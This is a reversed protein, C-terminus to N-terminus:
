RWSIVREDVFNYSFTLQQSVSDPFMPHPNSGDANMVWVEWRGTRNTLFAIQTGDPSWAPAVNHWASQVGPQVAAWLPTQTLRVRGSGDSNIRYIDTGDSGGGPRGRTLAIYRGDPSFVPSGDDVNETLKYTTRRNLDVALLGHGGDSVIRWPNAPDWAPRFAYTGGDVDEFSGDAVNVVRLAWHPDPPLKYCFDIDVEPGQPTMGKIDIKVKPNGNEDLYGYANAPPPDPEGESLDHCITKVELRGEHQFNLVIKSGDPSWDAGKPQKTFGLVARENSGDINILWLSGNDGEWRTFAVTQGDPSLVPDIGRTLYRLGSGDPNIVVIDGGSSLQLVMRSNQIKLTSNQIKEAGERSAEQDTGIEPRYVPLGAPQAHLTLFDLPLWGEGGGTPLSVHAWGRGENLGQVLVLSHIALTGVPEGFIGPQNRVTVENSNVWATVASAAGAPATIDAEALKLWGLRGESTQVLGWQRSQDVALLSVTQEVLDDIRGYPEGPGKYLGVQRPPTQVTLLPHLALPSAASPAPAAEAAQPSALAVTRWAVNEVAADPTEAPAEATPVPTPTAVPAAETQPTMRPFPTPTPIPTGLNPTPWTAANLPQLNTEAQAGACATLLFGTLIITLLVPQKKMKKGM